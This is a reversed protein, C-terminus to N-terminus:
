LGSSRRGVPGKEDLSLCFRALPRSLTSLRVQIGPQTQAAPLGVVLHDIYRPAPLLLSLLAGGVGLVNWRAIKDSCSMSASRDAARLDSRGSKTRLSGLRQPEAAAASEQGAASAGLGVTKAGTHKVFGGDGEAEAGAADEASFISADGCPPQNIYLALEVGERYGIGGGGNGGDDASAARRELLVTPPEAGGLLLQTYEALIFRRLARRAIM